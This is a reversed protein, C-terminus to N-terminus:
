TPRRGDNGGEGRAPLPLVHTDVVGEERAFSYDLPDRSLRPLRRETPDPPGPPPNNTGM